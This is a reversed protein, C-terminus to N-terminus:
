IIAFKLSVVLMIFSIKWFCVFSEDFCRSMCSFFDSIVVSNRLRDDIDIRRLM